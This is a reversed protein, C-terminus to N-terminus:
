FKNQNLKTLLQIVEEYSTETDELVIKQESLYKTVYEPDDMSMCLEDKLEIFEEKLLDFKTVTNDDESYEEVDVTEIDEYEEGTDTNVKSEGLALVADGTELYTEKASRKLLTELSQSFEVSIKPYLKKGSKTDKEAIRLVISMPQMVMSIKLKELTKQIDEISQKLRLYNEIGTSHLKNLHIGPVKPAIFILNFNFDCPAKDDKFPELTIMELERSKIERWAGQVLVQEVTKTGKTIKRHHEATLGLKKIDIVSAVENETYDKYYRSYACVCPVKEWTGTVPNHRNATKGDGMCAVKGMEFKIHKNDALIDDVNNSVFCILDLSKCRKGYVAELTPPLVFHGFKNYPYAQPFKKKDVRILYHDEKNGKYEKHVEAIIERWEGQYMIYQIPNGVADNVTKYHEPNDTIPVKIVAPSVKIQYNIDQKINDKFKQPIFVSM